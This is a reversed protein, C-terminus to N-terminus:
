DVIVPQAVVEGRWTVDDYDWWGYTGILAWTADASSAKSCTDTVTLVGEGNANYVLSTDCGIQLVGNRTVQARTRITNANLASPTSSSSCNAFGVVISTWTTARITGTSGADPVTLKAKECGRYPIGGFFSMVFSDTTWGWTSSQAAAVAPAHALLALVVTVVVAAWTSRLRRSGTHQAM